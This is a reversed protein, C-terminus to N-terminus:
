QPDLTVPQRLTKGSSLVEIVYAGSQPFAGSDIRGDWRFVWTGKPLTGDYLVRVERGAADVVRVRAPAPVQKDVVALLGTYRRGEVFSEPAVAKPVQPEAPRTARIEERNEPLSSLDVVPAATDHGGIWEPGKCVLLALSALILAAGAVKLSAPLATGWSGPWRPEPLGTEAYRREAFAAFERSAEPSSQLLRGLEDKEAETLDREFYDRILDSM